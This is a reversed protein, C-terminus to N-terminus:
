CLQVDIMTGSQWFSCGERVEFNSLYKAVEVHGEFAALMLSSRQNDTTRSSVIHPHVEHIRKVIEMLGKKSAVHFCNFSNVSETYDVQPNKCIIDNLKELQNRSAANFLSTVVPCIKQRPVAQMYDFIDM